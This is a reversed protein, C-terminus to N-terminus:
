QDYFEVQGSRSSKWEVKTIPKCQEPKGEKTLKAAFILNNKGRGFTIPLINTFKGHPQSIHIYKSPSKLSWTTLTGDTHSCMFQKGEHHWAISRLENTVWRMDVM